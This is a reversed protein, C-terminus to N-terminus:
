VRVAVCQLVSCCVAVSQLLSCRVAVCQLVSCCVAVCQLVSCCVAVCQLVSCCVAVSQLASGCCDHSLAWPCSKSGRTLHSVGVFSINGCMFVSLKPGKHSISFNM